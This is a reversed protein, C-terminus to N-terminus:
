IILIHPCVRDPQMLKPRKVSQLQERIVLEPDYRRKLEMKWSNQAPDATTSPMTPPPLSPVASSLPPISSLLTSPQALIQQSISPWGAVSRTDMGGLAEHPGRVTSISRDRRRSSSSVPIYELIETAVESGTTLDTVIVPKHISTTSTLSPQLPQPSDYSPFLLGDRPFAFLGNHVSGYDTSPHGHFTEHARSLPNTLGPQVTTTTSSVLPAGITSCTDCLDFLSHPLLYYRTRCGM